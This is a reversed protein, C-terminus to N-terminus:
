LRVTYNYSTLIISKAVGLAIKKNSLPNRQFKSVVHRPCLYVITCIELWSTDLEM